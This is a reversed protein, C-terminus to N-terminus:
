RTFGCGAAHVSVALVLYLAFSVATLGISAPAHRIDQPDVVIYEALVVMLFLVGGLTFVVWWEVGVQLTTLPVGIAWATLAPLLWHPLRVKGELHPHTQILWDTGAAAILSVLIAVLTSFNLRLEFLFGPLQLSVVREPLSVFPTLAYGLLIVAAVVSLRDADPLHRHSQM